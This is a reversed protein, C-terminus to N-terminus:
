SQPQVVLALSRSSARVDERNRILAAEALNARIGPFLGMLIWTTGWYHVTFGMVILVFVAIGLAVSLRREQESLCRSRDLPGLWFAGVVTVFLLFSGVLGFWLACQLWVADVSAGFLYGFNQWGWDGFGVGFFPSALVIPGAAMWILTRYWGAEPDVGGFQLLTSIPSNSYVFVFGIYCILIGILFRWRLKVKYLLYNYFLLLMSILYIAQPGRSQSLFVGVATCITCFVGFPSSGFTGLALVGFWACTVGFLISHEMPGMARVLGNRVISDSSLDYPKAYGTLQGVIDRVFLHGTLPDLLALIVVVVMVQCGFRVLRVASDPTELLYRAALYSGTFELALAGASKAGEAFGNTIMSALLMWIGAAVAFFDSPVFVHPRSRSLHQKIAPFFLAILVLRVVPLRFDGIIISLGEPLFATTVLLRLWVEYSGVRSNARPM